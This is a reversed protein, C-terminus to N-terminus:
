TPKLNTNNKDEMGSKYSIFENHVMLFIVKEELKNYEIIQQKTLTKKFNCEVELIIDNLEKSKSDQSIVEECRKYIFDSFATSM